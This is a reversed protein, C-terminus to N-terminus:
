FCVPQLKGTPTIADTICSTFIYAVRSLFKQQM